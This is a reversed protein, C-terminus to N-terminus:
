SGTASQRCSAFARARRSASSWSGIPLGLVQSRSGMNFRLMNAVGETAAAAPVGVETQDYYPAFASRATYGFWGSSAALM